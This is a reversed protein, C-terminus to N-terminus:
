WNGMATDAEGFAAGVTPFNTRAFEGFYELAARDYARAAAEESTFCGLHIRKTGNDIRARFLGPRDAYRSVGKYKCKRDRRPRQNQHNRSHSCRRLNERRNNLGDLDRHDIYEQDVAAMIQRHMMVVDKGVSRVAYYTLGGKLARWKWRNLAAYDQEDVIAVKGQTLPITPM